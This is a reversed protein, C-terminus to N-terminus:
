RSTEALAIEVSFHDIGTSIIFYDYYDYYCYYYCYYYCCCCCCCCCCGRRACGGGREPLAGQVEPALARLLGVM